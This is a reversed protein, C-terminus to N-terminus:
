FMKAIGIGFAFSNYADINFDFSMGGFVEWDNPIHFPFELGLRILAFNEHESFEMGGGALIAIHEHPKYTVMIASAIPHSREIGDIEVEESKNLTQASHHDDPNPNEVIFEEVIIDNHWGISWKENFNYNYNLGFSPLAMWNDGTENDVGSNIHTHSIVFSIAHKKHHGDHHTEHQVEHEIVEHAAENHKTKNEQSFVSTNAIFITLFLLITNENM